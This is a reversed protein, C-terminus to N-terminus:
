RLRRREGRRTARAAFPRRIVSRQEDVRAYDKLLRGGLVDFDDGLRQHAYSVTVRLPARPGEFDPHEFPRLQYPRELMEARSCPGADTRRM